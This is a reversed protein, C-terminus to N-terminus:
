IDGVDGLVRNMLDRVGRLQDKTMEIPRGSCRRAFLDDIYVVGQEEDATHLMVVDGNVLLTLNSGSVGHITWVDLDAEDDSDVM